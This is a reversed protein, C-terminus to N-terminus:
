CSRRSAQQTAGGEPSLANAHHKSEWRLEHVSLWKAVRRYSTNRSSHPQHFGARDAESRQHPRPPFFAPYASFSIQGVRAGQRFVRASQQPHFTEMIIGQQAVDMKVQTIRPMAPSAPAPFVSSDGAATRRLGCGRPGPPVAPVNRTASLGPKFPARPIASTGSSRWLLTNKDILGQGHVRVTPASWKAPCNRQPKHASHRQLQHNRRPMGCWWARSWVKRRRSGRPSDVFAAMMEDSCPHHPHGSKQHLRGFPTSRAFALLSRNVRIAPCAAWPFPTIYAVPSNASGPQATHGFQTREPISSNDYLQHGHPWHFVKNNYEVPPVGAHTFRKGRWLRGWAALTQEIEKYIPCAASPQRM